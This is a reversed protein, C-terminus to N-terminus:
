RQNKLAEGLVNGIIDATNRCDEIQNRNYGIELLIYQSSLDQNYKYSREIVKGTFGNYRSKAIENLTKVFNLNSQYTATGTSVVYSYKACTRGGVSVTAAPTEAAIADRHLDIVCKVSPYKELLEQTTAYSRGYSNNYSPYDHLTKDHVVAIGQKELTQALVNGVDRVTNEEDKSHFNGGSQPLYSETAHTHVILVEPEGSSVDPQQNDIEASEDKKLDTIEEQPIENDRSDALEIGMSPYSANICMVGLDTASVNRGSSTDETKNPNNVYAMCFCVTSLIYIIVASKGLLRKM